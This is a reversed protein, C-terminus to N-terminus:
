SRPPATSERIILRNIARNPPEPAPEGQIEALLRHIAYRGQAERDVAVTSLSPTSFRGYEEDDWGFVSLDRPVQWGRSLAGRVVGLAVSDNAAIVATVGCDEPLATVADFGSQASWEGDVAGVSELGLDEITELYV